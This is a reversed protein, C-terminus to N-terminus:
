PQPDIKKLFSKVAAFIEERDPEEIVVHGSHEVWLSTKDSSGIGALLTDLSEVPIGKDQRSQVLLAPIRITELEGLMARILKQLEVVWRARYFPYDVHYSLMDPNHWDAAGKVINLKLLALLPLFKARPDPPLACPASFTVVGAFDFRAASLLALVGGMSLGMVVQTDTCGKLLHMGDEVSAVWDQWCARDMDQPSTAHGFLRPALVTYGADALSNGLMRMEKPTGTWGHLLLCGTKGGPILFPEASPIISPQSM